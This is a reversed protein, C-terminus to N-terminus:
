MHTGLKLTIWRYIFNKQFGSAGKLVENLFQGLRISFGTLSACIINALQKKSSALKEEM